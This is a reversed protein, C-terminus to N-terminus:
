VSAFLAAAGVKGTTFALGYSLIRNMYLITIHFHLATDAMWALVSFDAIILIPTSFFTHILVDLWYTSVFVVASGPTAEGVAVSLKMMAVVVGFVNISHRVQM